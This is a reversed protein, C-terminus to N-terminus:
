GEFDKTTSTFNDEIGVEAEVLGKGEAVSQSPDSYSVVVQGLVARRVDDVIKKM